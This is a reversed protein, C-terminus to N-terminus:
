VKSYSDWPSVDFYQPWRILLEVGGWKGTQADVRDFGVCTSGVTPYKQWGRPNGELSSESSLVVRTPGASIRKLAGSDNRHCSAPAPPPPPAPAPSFDGSPTPSSAAPAAPTPWSPVVMFLSCASTFHRLASGPFLLVVAVNITPKQPQRCPIRIRSPSHLLADIRRM